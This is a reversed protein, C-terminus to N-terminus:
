LSVRDLCVPTEFVIVRSFLAPSGSDRLGAPVGM